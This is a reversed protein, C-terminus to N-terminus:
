EKNLLKNIKGLLIDIDLPKEISDNAGFIEYDHLLAANTSMLMIPVKENFRRIEQCVEKGNGSGIRIELILLDPAIAIMKETADEISYAIEVEHSHATLIFFLIQAVDHAEEVILIKAM